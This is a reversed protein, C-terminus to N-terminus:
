KMGWKNKVKVKGEKYGIALGGSHGESDVASFKWHPLLANLSLEVEAGNGLTEQLFFIESNSNQILETLVLRKPKSALGRCNWSTLIM